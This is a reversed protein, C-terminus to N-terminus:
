RGVFHTEGVPAPLGLGLLSSQVSAAADVVEREKCPARLLQGGEGGCGVAATTDRICILTPLASAPSHAKKMGWPFLVCENRVRPWCLGGAQMWVPQVVAPGSATLVSCLGDFDLVSRM